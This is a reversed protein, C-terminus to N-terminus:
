VVVPWVADAARFAARATTPIWTFERHCHDSTPHRCASKEVWVVRKFYDM